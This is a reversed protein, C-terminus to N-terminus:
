PSLTEVQAASVNWEGRVRDYPLQVRWVMPRQPGERPAIQGRVLVRAADDKHLEVGATSFTEFSLLAGRPLPQQRVADRARWYADEFTFRNSTAERWGDALPPAFISLLLVLPALIAGGVAFRKWHRPKKRLPVLETVPLWQELGERWYLTEEAILGSHLLHDIQPVTYPGRQEGSLHLYFAEPSPM